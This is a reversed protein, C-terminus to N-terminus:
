STMAAAMAIASISYKYAESTCVLVARKVSALCCSQESANVHSTPRRSERMYFTSGTTM